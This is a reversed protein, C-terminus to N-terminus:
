HARLMQATADLLKGYDVPKVLARAQPFRSTVEPPLIQGSFFMFPIKRESLKEAVRLSSSTGLRMDLLAGDLADETASQLAEELTGAVRVDAGANRLIFEVDSAIMFEDDAVLIRRAKLTTPDTTASM